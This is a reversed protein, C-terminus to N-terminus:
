SNEREQKFNVKKMHNGSLTGLILLALRSEFLGDYDSLKQSSFINYKSRFLIIDKRTPYANCHVGDWIDAIKRIIHSKTRIIEVVYKKRPSKFFFSTMANDTFHM